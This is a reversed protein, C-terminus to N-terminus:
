IKDLEEYDNFASGYKETFANGCDMKFGLAKCDDAM